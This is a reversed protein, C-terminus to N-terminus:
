FGAMTPCSFGAPDSGQRGGVERCSQTWELGAVSVKRSRERASSRGAEPGKDRSNRRDYGRKKWTIVHSAERRRANWSFHRRKM